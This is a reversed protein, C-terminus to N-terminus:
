LIKKKRKEMSFDSLYIEVLVEYVIYFGLHAVEKRVREVDNNPSLILTDVQHYLSTKYKLIGIINLGGMGSIVITDTDSEIPDVGDGLKLKIKDELHYKRINAEAQELPGKKNDSAILFVNQKTQALYIDLFAHDCGIDIVHSGEEVLEAITKLRHNINYVKSIM